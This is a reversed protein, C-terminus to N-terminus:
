KTAHSGASGSTLTHLSRHRQSGQRGRWRGAADRGPDAAVLCVRPLCCWATAADKGEVRHAVASGTKVNHHNGRFLTGDISVNSRADAEQTKVTPDERQDRSVDPGRLHSHKLGWPVALAPLAPHPHCCAGRLWLDVPCALSPSWANALNDSSDKVQTRFMQM